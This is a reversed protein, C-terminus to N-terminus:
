LSSFGPRHVHATAFLFFESPKRIVAYGVSAMLSPSLIHGFHLHEIVSRSIGQGHPESIGFVLVYTLLRAILDDQHLVFRSPHDTELAQVKGDFRRFRQFDGEFRCRRLPPPDFDVSDIAVYGTELGALDPAELLEVAAFDGDVPHEGELKGPVEALDGPFGVALDADQDAPLAVDVEDDHPIVALEQDGAEVREAGALAAELPEPEDVGVEVPLREGAVIEGVEGQKAEIEDAGYRHLFVPLGAPGV